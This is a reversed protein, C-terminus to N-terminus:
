PPIRTKITLAHVDDILGQLANTVLRSQDAKSCSAFKPSSVHLEIVIGCGPRTKDWIEVNRADIREKLRDTIEQVYSDWHSEVLPIENDGLEEEIEEVEVSKSPALHEADNRFTCYQRPFWRIPRLQRHILSPHSPSFSQRMKVPKLCGHRTSPRLARSLFTLAKIELAM